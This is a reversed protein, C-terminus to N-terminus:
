LTLALVRADVAGDPRPYYGKRLGIQVFGFRAYLAQAPANDSAVELVMRELGRAKAAASLDALILRGIGRGRLAPETALTVLEGDEATNLVLGFASLCADSTLGVGFVDSRCLWDHFDRQSWPREFCAAHTKALAGAHHPSLPFVAFGDPLAPEDM